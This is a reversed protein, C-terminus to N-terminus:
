RWRNCAISIACPAERFLLMLIVDSAVNFFTDLDIVASGPERNHTLSVGM